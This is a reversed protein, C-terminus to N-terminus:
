RGRLVSSWDSAGAVASVRAGGDFSPVKRAAWHPRAALLQDLHAGVREPNIEGSEADVFDAPTAGADWLDAPRALRGAALREVEARQFAGVRGRLQDREAETARLQRRYRAAEKGANTPQEPTEPTAADATAAADDPIPTAATGDDTTTM